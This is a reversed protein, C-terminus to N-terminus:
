RKARRGEMKKEPYEEEKKKEKGLNNRIVGDKGERESKERKKKWENCFTAKLNRATMKSLLRLLLAADFVLM